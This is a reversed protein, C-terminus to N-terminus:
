LHNLWQTAGTYLCANLGCKNANKLAKEVSMNKNVSDIFGAVFSDGAGTSDICVINKEPKYMNGKYLCGRASCKIIVNGVGCGKLIKECEYIDDSDSLMKAEKENCFFYDIYKLYKLDNAKENNKPTSCDVFLKINREKISKFLEEYKEANLLKSIFLSAFSVIECDDDIKIDELDLMRVSGNESGVFSREGDKDIFVLSIYTDIDKKFINTNYEIEKDKLHDAIYEGYFDNGLVTILKVDNDFRKLVLAENLADGGLGTSMSGTKYSGSFFKEKDVDNILIDVCSAGIVNIKSM